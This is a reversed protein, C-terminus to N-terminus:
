ARKIQNIKENIVDNAMRVRGIIKAIEDEDRSIRVIHMPRAVFPCYVVFDTYSAGTCAMHSQCQYFYDPNVRLLSANDHIDSVYKIYTSLAPCKIEICGITDGDEIIGDPSSALTPFTDHRCLGVEVVTHGTTETYYARAHEEQESGFRMAKSQSTTQDLFFQLMDDDNVIAPNLAREGAVQCLYTLATESFVADKSRPVKMLVGVNSGTITGLRDRFWEPTHQKQNFNLM